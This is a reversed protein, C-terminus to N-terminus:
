LIFNIKVRGYYVLFAKLVMGIGAKKVLWLSFALVGGGGKRVAIGKNSPQAQLKVGGQEIKEPKHEFVSAQRKSSPDACCKTKV